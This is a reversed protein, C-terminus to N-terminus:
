FLFYLVSMLVFVFNFCVYCMEKGINLLFSIIIIIFFFLVSILVFVLISISVSSTRRSVFVITRRFLGLCGVVGWFVGNIM